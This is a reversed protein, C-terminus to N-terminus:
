HFFDIINIVNVYFYDNILNIINSQLFMFYNNLEIIKNFERINIVIKSKKILNQKSLYITKWIVFVFFNFFIIKITWSMKKERYLKNLKKDIFDRNQFDVFYVRSSKSKTEFITKISIWNKKIRQRYRRQKKM